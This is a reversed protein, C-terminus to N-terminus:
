CGETVNFGHKAAIMVDLFWTRPSAQEEQAKRLGGDVDVGEDVKENEDADVDVDVDVDVFGVDEIM